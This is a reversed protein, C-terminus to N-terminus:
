AFSDKAEDMLQIFVDELGPESLTWRYETDRIFPTISQQLLEADSGSVHEKSRVSDADFGDDRKRSNPEPVPKDVAHISSPM